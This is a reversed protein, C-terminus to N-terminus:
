EGWREREESMERVSHKNCDADIREKTNMSCHESRLRKSIVPIYQQRAEKM